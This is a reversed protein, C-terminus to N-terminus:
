PCQASLALLSFRMESTCLVHCAFNVHRVNELLMIQVFLKRDPAFDNISWARLIVNCDMVHPTRERETMIFVGDASDVAARKLDSRDLASGMIFHINRYRLLLQQMDVFMAKTSLIVIDAPYDMTDQSLERAFEEVFVVDLDGGILVVHRKRFLMSPAYTRGKTNLAKQVETIRTIQEPIVVIAVIISCLVFARGLTSMPTFDGYGVTSFTVIVFWLSTFLTLRTENDKELHEVGCMSTVIICVITLVLNQMSEWLEQMDASVHKKRSIASMLKLSATRIGWVHLFNPVILNGGFWGSCFRLIVTAFLAITIVDVTSAVPAVPYVIVRITSDVLYREEGKFIDGLTMLVRFIRRQFSKRNLDRSLRSFRSVRGVSGKSTEM